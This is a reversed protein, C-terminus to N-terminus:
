PIALGSRPWTNILIGLIPIQLARPTGTSHWAAASKEKRSIEDATGKERVGPRDLCKKTSARQSEEAQRAKTEAHERGKADKEM